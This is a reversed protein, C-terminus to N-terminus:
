DHGHFIKWVCKVKALDRGFVNELMCRMAHNRPHETYVPPRQKTHPLPPPDKEAYNEAGDVRENKQLEV